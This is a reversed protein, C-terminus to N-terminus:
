VRTEILKIADAKNWSGLENLIELTDEAFRVRFAYCFDATITDGQGPVTGKDFAIVGSETNFTAPVPNTPGNLYAQASIAAPRTYAGYTYIARTDFAFLPAQFSQGNGGQVDRVAQYLKTQGDGYAIFQGIVKNQYQDRFLMTSLPGSMAMYMGEIAEVEFYPIYERLYGYPLTWEYRPLFQLAARGELGSAATQILTTQHIIRTRGWTFGGLDPFFPTAM